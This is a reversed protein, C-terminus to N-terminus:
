AVTAMVCSGAYRRLARRATGRVSPPVQGVHWAVTALVCLTPGLWRTVGRHGTRLVGETGHRERLPPGLWRAVGRHGNRLVRRAEPTIVPIGQRRELAPRSAGPAQEGVPQPALLPHLWSPGGWYHLGRAESEVLQLAPVPDPWWPRGLHHLGLLGGAIQAGQTIRPSGRGERRPLDPAARPGARGGASPRAPSPALFAQGLPPPM